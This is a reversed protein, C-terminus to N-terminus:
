ARVRRVALGRRRRGPGGDDTGAAEPLVGQLVQAQERVRVDGRDVDGVVLKGRCALDAGVVGHVGVVEAIRGDGVHHEVEDAVLRREGVSAVSTHDCVSSAKKAFADTGARKRITADPTGMSASSNKWRRSARFPHARGDVGPSQRPAVAVDGSEIRRVQVDLGALEM